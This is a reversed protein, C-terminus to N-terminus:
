SSGIHVGFVQESEAHRGTFRQAQRMFEDLAEDRFAM